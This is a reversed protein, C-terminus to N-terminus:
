PTTGGRVKTAKGEEIVAMPSGDVSAELKFSYATPTEETVTARIKMPKGDATIEDMWTWVKGDVNGRVFLANGQSNISHYTYAKRGPDYAMVSQGTSPGMPGTGKTRCILQFGGAFWECSETASIKGGPGMPGPKAEGQFSWQGAFYGIRKQEPGPKPRQPPAQAVVTTTLMALAVAASLMSKM